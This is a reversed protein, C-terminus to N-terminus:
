GGFIISYLFATHIAKTADVYIKNNSILVDTTKTSGFTITKNDVQAEVFTEDSGIVKNYFPKLGIRVTKENERFFDLGENDEVIIRTVPSTGAEEQHSYVYIKESANLGLWDLLVKDQHSLLGTTASTAPILKSDLVELAEQVTTVGSLLNYFESQKVLLFESSYQELLFPPFIHEM